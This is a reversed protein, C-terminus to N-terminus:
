KVPHTSVWDIALDEPHARFPTGGELAGSNPHVRRMSAIGKRDIDVVHFQGKLNTLGVRHDVAFTAFGPLAFTKVIM